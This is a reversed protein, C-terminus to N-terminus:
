PRIIYTNIYAHILQSLFEINDHTSDGYVNEMVPLAMHLVIVLRELADAHQAQVPQGSYQSVALVCIKVLNSTIKHLHGPKVHGCRNEEKVREPVTLQFFNRGLRKNRTFETYVAELFVDIADAGEPCHHVADELRRLSEDWSKEFVAFFLTKKTPFYNYLTGAAIGAAKSIKRTDVESYAAQTFLEQAAELIKSRIDKIIKPM